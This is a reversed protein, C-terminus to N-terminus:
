DHAGAVYLHQGACQRRFQGPAADIHTVGKQGTELTRARVMLRVPAPDLQDARGGMEDSGFQVFPRDDLLVDFADAVVVHGFVHNADAAVDLPTHQRAGQPKIQIIADQEVAVLGYHEARPYLRSM